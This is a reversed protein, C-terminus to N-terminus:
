TGRTSGANATCDVEDSWDSKRARVVSGAAHGDTFTFAHSSFTNGREGNWFRVLDLGVSRELAVFSHGNRSRGSDVFAAEGPRLEETSSHKVTITSADEALLDFFDGRVRGALQLYASVCQHHDHPRICTGTPLVFLTALTNGGLALSLGFQQFSNVEAVHPQILADIAQLLRNPGARRLAGRICSTWRRMQTQTPGRFVVADARAVEECFTELVSSSRGAGLASSVMATMFGRRSYPM